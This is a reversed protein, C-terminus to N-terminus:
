KGVNPSFRSCELPFAHLYEWGMSCKPSGIPAAEVLFFVLGVKEAM